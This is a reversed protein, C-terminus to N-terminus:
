ISSVLAKSTNFFLLLLVRLNLSLANVLPAKHRGDYLREGTVACCIGSTHGVSCVDKAGDLMVARPAFTSHDHSIPGCQKHLFDLVVVPGRLRTLSTQKGKHCFVMSCLPQLSVSVQTTNDATWLQTSSTGGAERDSFSRM